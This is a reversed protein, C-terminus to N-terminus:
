ALRRPPTLRGPFQHWEWRSGDEEVLWPRLETRVGADQKYFFAVGADVCADRVDRAWSQLMWRDDGPGLGALHQGSEGGVIVWALAPHVEPLPGTAESIPGAELEGPEIRALWPRLHVPGLMPEVSLFRTWGAPLELLKAVRVDAWRQDEVSTGLWINPPPWAPENFLSTQGKEQVAIARMIASRFYQDGLMSVMRGPRKTLVQYTHQPALLMTAFVEAVFSAPALEHFLDSMSNVFVMAPEHWGIPARLREPHLTVNDQAYRKEWPFRSWGRDLSLTEAYCHDCGASVKSCGTVPNWTRNTWSIKTETTM